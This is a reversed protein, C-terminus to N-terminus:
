KQVDYKSQKLVEIQKTMELIQEQLTLNETESQLLQYKLKEILEKSKILILNQGETERGSVSLTNRFDDDQYDPYEEPVFKTGGFHQTNSLTLSNRGLEEEYKALDKSDELSEDQLNEEGLEHIVTKTLNQLLKGSM